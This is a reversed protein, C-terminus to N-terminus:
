KKSFMVCTDPLCKEEQESRSDLYAFFQSESMAKKLHNCVVCALVKDTGGKCRPIIHDLTSNLVDVAKGCYYCHPDDELMTLRLGRVREKEHKTVEPRRKYICEICALLHRNVVKRKKKSYHRKKFLGSTEETVEVGCFECVPNLKLLNLRRQKRDSM